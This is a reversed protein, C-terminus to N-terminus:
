GRRAPPSRRSRGCGRPAACPRRGAARPPCSWGCAREGVVAGRQARVRPEDQLHVGAVEADDAERLRGRERSSAASRALRLTGSTSSRPLPSSAGSGGGSSRSSVRPRSGAVRADVQHGEAAVLQQAPRLRPQRRALRRRDRAMRACGARGRAARPCSSAPRAPRRARRARPRGRRARPAPAACATRARRRPARPARLGQRPRRAARAGASSDLTASPLEATPPPAAGSPSTGVVSSRSACGRPPRRAPAGGAGPRGAPRPARPRRRAPAPGACPPARVLLLRQEGRQAAREAPDIRDRMAARGAQAASSTAEGARGAPRSTVRTPRAQRRGDVLRSAYGPRGARGHAETERRGDAADDVADEVAPTGRESGRRAARAPAPAPRGIRRARRRQADLDARGRGRLAERHGIM